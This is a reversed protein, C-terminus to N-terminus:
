QAAARLLAELRDSAAERMEPLVHAYTQLTFAVSAHGAQRSVTKIDAGAMISLTVWTHRLDYLRFKESLGAARLTRKFFRFSLGRADVPTGVPTAFVLDHDEYAAGLKMRHALQRQRHERLERLLEAPFIVERYGADSKPVSDWWGGGPKGQIVTRRVNVRGRHQGARDRYEFDVDSWKLGCYEEPRLGTQLAFRLAIGYEEAYTARLFAQAQAPTFCLMEKKKRKPARVYRMPNEGVDRWRAADAYMSALISHLYEVSRGSLGARMKAAYFEEVDGPRLAALRIHGLAPGIHNTFQNGYAIHTPEKIREAIAAHWRKFFASITLRTESLPQGKSKKQRLELECQEAVDRGGYVVQSVSVRKGQADRGDYVRVQYKKRGLNKIM